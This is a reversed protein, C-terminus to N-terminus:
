CNSWSADSGGTGVFDYCGSGDTGVSGGYGSYSSGYSAAGGRLGATLNWMAPGGEPGAWGDPRLFYRGPYVGGYAAILAQLELPHIERGNIFVGTGGGSVGRPMPGGLRMGAQLQGMAPGGEFGWLGSVDDYWYRGPSVAGYRAALAQLTAPDLARRNVVVAASLHEAGLTSAKVVGAIPPPANDRGSWDGAAPSCGAAILFLILAAVSAKMIM